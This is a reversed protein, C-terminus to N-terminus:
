KKSYPTKVGMGGRQGFRVLTYTADKKRKDAASMNIGM